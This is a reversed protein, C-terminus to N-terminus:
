WGGRVVLGTTSPRLSLGAEIRPSDPKKASPAAIVMVVGTALVLGGAVFAVTSINGASRADDRLAKGAPDCVNNGDCTAKSDSNKSLAMGGFVAGIGLSVVGLGGVVLGWTRVSSGTSAHAGRDSAGASKTGDAAVEVAGPEVSIERHEAEALDVKFTKAEYGPASVIVVHEGPDVPLEAGLSGQALTVADRKVVSGPPAGPSLSVRLRPVRKDLAAYRSTAMALRDDNSARALDIARQLHQRAGAIQGLKEECEALNLLTGVKADLRLSEAFKPCATKYDGGSMAERGQKFLETAAVPDTTQALLPASCTLVFTLIGLRLGIM